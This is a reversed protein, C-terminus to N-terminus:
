ESRLATAPDIRLARRAPIYCALLTVLMLLLSVALFTVPDYPAVGYLLGSILRTLAFAASLGLFVGIAAMKAGQSLVLLLVDRRQAGLAMRVGIEQTRRGILYSVVGYIGVCSLLLALAAFAALLLMSLRRASKRLSRLSYRLDQSLPTM